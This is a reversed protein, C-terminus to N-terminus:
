LSPALPPPAHSTQSFDDGIRPDAIRAAASPGAERLASLVDTESVLDRLIIPDNPAHAPYIALLPISISGLEELKQKIEDSKDTWDALMPVVGLKKVLKAVQPTNIALAMNAKCTLCWDASFDVLVTKGKQSATALAAPTYPTWELYSKKALYNFAFFGIAASAAFGGIWGALKRDFTATMPVRGIWWCGFWVGFMLTLTALFLSENVTSILFVTAGLLVFGMLQKFTEMWAGPKPIWRILSPFAGILLYPLALGLGVSLMIVYTVAPPQKITYGFVPGLFPGSCPTALVTTFVGKFFAGTAGERAALQESKGRGVFGPIPIEWVGLFSLAMAFVLIVMSIKFTNSTFQEGWGLNLFVALTALVVFVSMIGFAYILNLRFAEWRSGHSQEVFSLLKLGIVPLVCPMLNLILGGLIGWGMNKVLMPWSFPILGTPGPPTSGDAAPRTEGLTETPDLKAAFKTDMTDLPLCSQDSCIQGKVEGEIVLSTADTGAALEVPATWIVRGEHFEEMVPFFESKQKHPEKQPQFPGTVRVAANSKLPMETRDPGGPPQTVSYIHWGTPVDVIVQVAGKTQTEDLLFRSSVKLKSDERSDAQLSQLGAIPPFKNKDQAGAPATLLGAILALCVTLGINKHTM